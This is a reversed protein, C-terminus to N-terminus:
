STPTAEPAVAEDAGRTLYITVKTKDDGDDELVAIGFFGSGNQEALGVYVKDDIVAGGIDGCAIYNQVNQDSEHINIAHATEFIDSFKVDIDGTESYEVPAASLSGKIDEAAPLEDDKLRPGVNNLPFAPNPDLDACSGVHIHAPHTVISDATETPDQAIVAGAFGVSLVAAVAFASVRALVRNTIM